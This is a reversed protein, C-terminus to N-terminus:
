KIGEPFGVVSAVYRFATISLAGFRTSIQRLKDMGGQINSVTEFEAHMVTKSKIADNKIHTDFQGSIGFGVSKLISM